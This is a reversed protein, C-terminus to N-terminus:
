RTELLTSCRSHRLSIKGSNPTHGWGTMPTSPPLSPMLRKLLCTAASGTTMVSLVFVIKRLDNNYMEHNIDMYVEVKQLFEKFGDQNGNFAEPKNLNLEKPGNAPQAM